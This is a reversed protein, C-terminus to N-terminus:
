SFRSFSYPLYHLWYTTIPTSLLFFEIDLGFRAVLASHVLPKIFLIENEMSIDCNAVTSRSLPRYSETTELSRIIDM